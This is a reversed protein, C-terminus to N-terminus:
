SNACVLCRSSAFAFSNRPLVPNRFPFFHREHKLHLLCLIGTPSLDGGDTFMRGLSEYISVEFIDSLM